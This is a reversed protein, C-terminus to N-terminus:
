TGLPVAGRMDSRESYREFATLLRADIAADSRRILRESRSVRARNRLDGRHGRHVMRRAEHRRQGGM